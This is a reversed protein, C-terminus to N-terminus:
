KSPAIIVSRLCHRDSEPFGFSVRGDANIVSYYTNEALSRGRPTDTIKIGPYHQKLEEVSVCTGDVQFIMMHIHAPDRKDIRIELDRIQQGRQLAFPASSYMVLNDNFANDKDQARVVPTPWVRKLEDLGSTAGTKALAVLEWLTTENMDARTTNMPPSGACAAISLTTLCLAALARFENRSTWRKPISPKGM